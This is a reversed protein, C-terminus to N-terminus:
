LGQWGGSSAWCDCCRQSRGKRTSGANSMNASEDLFREADGPLGSLWHRRFWQIRWEVGQLRGLGGTQDLEWPGCKRSLQPEITAAAPVDGEGYPMQQATGTTDDAFMLVLSIPGM